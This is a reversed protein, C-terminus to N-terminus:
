HTYSHLVPSIVVHIIVQTEWWWDGTHMDHYMRNKREEDAYQREPELILDDVFDPDRWLSRICELIDRAYFEFEEGHVLM